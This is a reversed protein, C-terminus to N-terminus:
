DWSLYSTASLGAMVGTLFFFKERIIALAMNFQFFSSDKSNVQDFLSIM